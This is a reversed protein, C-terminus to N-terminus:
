IEGDPQKLKGNVYWKGSEFKDKTDKIITELENIAKLQDQVLMSTDFPVKINYGLVLEQNVLKRIYNPYIESKLNEVLCAPCYLKGNRYRSNPDFRNKNDEWFIQWTEPNQSLRTINEGPEKGLPYLPEGKKLKELEDEFLMDKDIKDPIFVEEFLDAGTILNLGFAAHESSEALSLKEILVPIKGPIGDLGTKIIEPVTKDKTESKKIFASIDPDNHWQEPMYLACATALAKEQKVNNNDFKQLVQKVFDIQNQRCFVSAAGFIEGSDDPKSCIEAAASGGCILADIHAELRQEINDADQFNTGNDATFRTRQVYLGSIEELHEKYITKAFNM